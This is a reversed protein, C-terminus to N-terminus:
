KVEHVLLMDHGLSSWDTGSILVIQSGQSLFGNKKGYNAIYKLIEQPSKDVVDTLLSTVGWYLTIRRATARRDTLAVTPVARRQKSLAMATKGEHTCTVMLDADLKEATIGAGLTVAETVERAHLRRNSTTEESHLSSSLIRAAERVIRSMMEVAALPSVGVATEGSLMVADSGDLVANAVDSAEARTPFTNFQMSDLMQTATIVPVRYQNCLHIIRKQIIPVREIDVEVGLDGRAVMVADTLKLIQEIDSVAEIKEIKAVIHPRDEPKLKDIEENLHTIDDASRVFSLGVYDLRHEVAWALDKIDKETLSPTSLQVGPLNVGQKSRIIGEREVICVVSQGDDPKEVVRMAVMGDALLVPDGVRLDEILPEYTCTLEQPNNTEIGRIFRFRMDHRCTIEDGPLVGLRIKPGSLDGLIGVPKGMEDSLEHINNVIGSLWDHTGHAFNLRFLDVGAIILRRLMDRSDSAPGVTAIIKTKVLPQEEYQIKETM